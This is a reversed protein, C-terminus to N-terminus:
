CGGAIVYCAGAGDRGCSDPQCYHARARSHVVMNSFLTAIVPETDNHWPCAISTLYCPPPSSALPLPTIAASIVLLPSRSLESGPNKIRTTIPQLAGNCM